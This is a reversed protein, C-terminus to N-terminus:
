FEVVGYVNEVPLAGLARSDTSNNRNDGLFYFCGSPVVFATQESVCGQLNGLHTSLLYPVAGKQGNAQFFLAQETGNTYYNERLTQGDATKIVLVVGEGQPETWIKDGALAVVRKILKEYEGGSQAEKGVSFEALIKQTSTLQHKYLVVVDGRSIQKQKNIWVSDGSHFNPEMSEGQVSIRCGVFFRLVLSLALLVVLAILLITLAKDLRKKRRLLVPDEETLVDSPALADPSQQAVGPADQQEADVTNQQEEQGALPNHVNNQEDNTM